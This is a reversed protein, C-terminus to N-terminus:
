IRFTKFLDQKAQQMRQAFVTDSMQSALQDLAHWTMGPKLLDLGNLHTKLREFPTQYTQYVKHEKGRHDTTVTAYGCPRHYNLYPNFWDKYFSNITAAHIQPIHIYGMHKRIRSGNKGEVLANDNTQRSRSKTQTILLKNLLRAVYKNIYESGNDSHFGLIPFPYQDLLDQLLPILHRECITEVAGVVEWQFVEDVTNIHYVGKQGQVDGQHVTDVRLYGPHGQPDPKRREGIPVPTPTTKTFYKTASTYQRTKRLTYFQGNSIHRLQQYETHHFLEYERQFIRRMAPGAIRGHALDATALLAIDSPTYITPFRHRRVQSLAIAGTRRQITILRTTQADSYGTLKM